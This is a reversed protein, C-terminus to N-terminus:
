RTRLVTYPQMSYASRFMVIKTPKICCQPLHTLLAGSYHRKRGRNLAQQVPDYRFTAAPMLPPASREGSAKNRRQRM